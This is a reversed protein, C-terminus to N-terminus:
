LIFMDGETYSGWNVAITGSLPGTDPPVLRVTWPVRSSVPCLFSLQHPIPCNIPFLATSPSYPLPHPIPCNIPFLANSIATSPSYPLQHPTPCYINCYIPFLATSPSYPLLHPINCHI